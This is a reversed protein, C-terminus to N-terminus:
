PKEKLKVFVLIVNAGFPLVNSVVLPIDGIMAGYVLWLGVGASLLLPQWLSLDRTSKSRLTKVVQPIAAVSTIAGALLGVGMM